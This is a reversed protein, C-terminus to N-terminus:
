GGHTFVCILTMTGNLVNSLIKGSRENEIADSEARTFEDTQEELVILRVECFGDVGDENLCVCSLLLLVLVCEIIMFQKKKRNSLRVRWQGKHMTLFQMLIGLCCGEGHNLDLAIEINVRDREFKTPKLVFIIRNIHHYM